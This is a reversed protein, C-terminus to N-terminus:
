QLVGREILDEVLVLTGTEDLVVAQIGGGPQGFAEAITSVEIHWGRPLDGTLEYGHLKSSMSGPQLGRQGWASGPPIGLYEGDPEGIRDVDSGYAARFDDLSTFTHRSGPVAGANPPWRPKGNPDIYRQRWEEATLPNGTAPDRGWPHAPDAGLGVIDPNATAPDPPFGSPM